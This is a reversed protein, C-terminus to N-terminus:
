KETTARGYQSRRAALFRCRWTMSCAACRHRPPRRSSESRVRRLIKIEVCNDVLAATGPRLALELVTSPEDLAAEFARVAAMVHASRTANVLDHVNWAVWDDGLVPRQTVHQAAEGACCRRQLGPEERLARRAGESLQGVVHRADAFLSAPPEVDPAAELEAVFPFASTDRFPTAPIDEMFAHIDGHPRWKDNIIDDTLGRRGTAHQVFGLVRQLDGAPFESLLLPEILQWFPDQEDDVEQLM